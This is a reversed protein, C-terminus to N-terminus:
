SCWGSRRGGHYERALGKNILMSSLNDGDVYVEALLRFYKGRRVNRLEIVKANQLMSVTYQRALQAKKKESECKGHLEPADVGQMRVPISDGIIGPWETVEIRFTDADYISIIKSVTISQIYIKDDAIAPFSCLLLTLLRYWM